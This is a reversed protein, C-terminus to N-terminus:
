MGKSRALRRFKNMIPKVDSASIKGLNLLSAVVFEYQDVVPDQHDAQDFYIMEKSVERENWAHLRKIEVMDSKLSALKGLTNGVFFTGLCLYFVQFLRM